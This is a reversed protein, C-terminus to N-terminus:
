LWAMICCFLNCYPVKGSKKKQTRAPPPKKSSAVPKFFIDDLETSEIKPLSPQINEHDFAQINEHDSEEIIIEDKGLNAIRDDIEDNHLAEPNTFEFSGTDAIEPTDLLITAQSDNLNEGPDPSLKESITAATCESFPLSSEELFELAKKRSKKKRSSKRTPPRRKRSSSRPMRQTTRPPSPSPQSEIVPFDDNEIVLSSPKTPLNRSEETLEDDDDSYVRSRVRRHCKRKGFRKNNTSAKSANNTINGACLVAAEIEESSGCAGFLRNWVQLPTELDDSEDSIPWASSSYSSKTLNNQSETRIM